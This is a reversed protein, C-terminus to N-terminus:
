VVVPAFAVFYSHLFVSAMFVMFFLCIFAMGIDASSLWLFSISFALLGCAPLLRLLNM